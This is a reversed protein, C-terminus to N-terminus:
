VVALNWGNVEFITTRYTYTKQFFSMKVLANWKKMDLGIKRLLWFLCKNILNFATSAGNSSIAKANKCRQSILVVCKKQMFHWLSQRLVLKRALIYTKM